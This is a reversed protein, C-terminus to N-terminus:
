PRTTPKPETQRRAMALLAKIDHMLAQSGARISRFRALRFLNMLATRLNKLSLHTAQFPKGDRTGSATVEVIWWTGVWAQAIHPQGLKARLTCTIVRGHSVEHDMAVFPIKRRGQFQSHIQRHLTKQNSRVTL